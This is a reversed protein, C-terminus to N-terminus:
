QVLPRFEGTWPHSASRCICGTEERIGQQAFDEVASSIYRYIAFVFIALGEETTSNVCKSTSIGHSEERLAGTVSFRSYHLDLFASCPCCKFVSFPGTFDWLVCGLTGKRDHGAGNNIGVLRLVPTIYTGNAYELEASRRLSVISTM